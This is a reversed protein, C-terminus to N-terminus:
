KNRILLRVYPKTCRFGNGEVEIFTRSNSHARRARGPEPGGRSYFCKFGDGDRVHLISSGWSYQAIVRERIIEFDVDSTTVVRWGDPIQFPNKAHSSQDSNPSNEPLVQFTLGRDTALSVGREVLESNETLENGFKRRKMRHKCEPSYNSLENDGGDDRSTIYAVADEFFAERPLSDHRLAEMKKTSSLNAFRCCLWLRLTDDKSLTNSDIYAVILDFVQDEPATLEDFRLLQVLRDVTLCLLSEKDVSAFGGAVVKLSAACVKEMRLEEGQLLAKLAFEVDEASLRAGIWNMCKRGLAPVDLRRALEMMPLAADEDLELRGEYIFDLLQPVRSSCEGPLDDLVTTATRTENTRQSFQAHFYGSSREGNSLVNRHLRYIEDDACDDAAASRVRVTWDSHSELPDNRWSLRQPTRPTTGLWGGEDLDFGCEDTSM